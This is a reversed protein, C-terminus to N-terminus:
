KRVESMPTTEKADIMPKKEKAQEYAGYNARQEENMVLRMGHELLNVRADVVDLKRSLKDEEESSEESTEVEEKPEILNVQVVSEDDEIKM